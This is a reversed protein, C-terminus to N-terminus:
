WPCSVVSWQCSGHAGDGDDVLLAADAFRRGGHVEACGQRAFTMADADEIDVRLCVGREVEADVGLRADWGDVLEQRGVGADGLKPLGGFVAQEDGGGVDIQGGGFDLEGADNATFNDQAVLEGFGGGVEVVDEDVARRREADERDVGETGDVVDEKRELWVEEGEVAQALQEFGDAEDGVAEVIPQLEGADHEAHVFRARSQGGFDALVDLLEEAFGAFTAAGPAADSEEFRADAAVDAEGLGGAEALGDEAVGGVRGAGDVVAGEGAFDEGVVGASGHEGLGDRSIIRASRPGSANSATLAYRVWSTEMRM